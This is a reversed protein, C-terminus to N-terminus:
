PRDYDEEKRVNQLIDGAGQNHFEPYLVLFLFFESLCARNFAFILLGSPKIIRRKCAPQHFYGRQENSVCIESGIDKLPVNKRRALWLIAERPSCLRKPYWRTVGCTYFCTMYTMWPLFWAFRFQLKYTGRRQYYPVVRYSKRFVSM